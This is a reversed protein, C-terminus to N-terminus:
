WNALYVKGTYVGQDSVVKVVYYGEDIVPTIRNLTNGVLHGQYLERGIMDSIFVDGSLVTGDTSKIYVSSGFSYIQVHDNNKMEEVGFSPNYFHLVFRNANDLTDYTFTYSPYLRLDQTTSLKLDELTIAINSAFTGISDAKLTYQGNLGYSFGM